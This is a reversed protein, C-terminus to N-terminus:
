RQFFVQWLDAVSTHYSYYNAFEAFDNQLPSTGEGLNGTSDGSVAGPPNLLRLSNHIKSNIPVKQDSYRQMPM